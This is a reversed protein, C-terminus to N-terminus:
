QLGESLEIGCYPCYLRVKNTLPDKKERPISVFRHCYPCKIGKREDPPRISKGPIQIIPRGLM